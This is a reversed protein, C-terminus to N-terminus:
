PAGGLAAHNVNSDDLYNRGGFRSFKLQTVVEGGQLPLYTTMLFQSPAPVPAAGKPLAESMVRGGAASPQEAHLLERITAAVDLNSTPEQDDFHRRFGPGAAACFNHIERTGAAGHMGMGATFSSDEGVDSYVLGEIPRVLKYSLNPMAEQGHAGLAFAPNEPGTVDHNDSDAIERFSIILDPARPSDHIGVVSQSFTGPIWGLYDANGAPKAGPPPPASFIPGCWEQAEAFDTIRVLALRRAEDSAYTARSLYVMDYGGNPAVVLDSSQESKKVGATVLLGALSLKLRITAFGHDSAVILDTRDAIRLASLAAEIRGLNADCQRLADIAPATGLGAIHQVLDPNHQWLIVFAPRGGAAARKAAPLARETVIQAFWADRAGISALDGHSMAPANAVEAAAAQPIGLDDAVLLYNSPNANADTAAQTDFLFTPGRKGIVALYGGAERVQSGIAELGLLHGDFANPGNLAALNTSNELNIPGDIKAALTPNASAKSGELAPALYLFNGLIGSAGADGGSAFAGANVMTVTPFVSHHNEFRVGRNELAYLNPTDQQNVLDPRLGDWIMLVVIRGKPQVAAALRGRPQGGIAAGQELIIVALAVLTIIAAPILSPRITKM